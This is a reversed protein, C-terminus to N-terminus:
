TVYISVVKEVTYQIAYAFPKKNNNSSNELTFDTVQVTAETYKVDTVDPAKAFIISPASILSLLQNNKFPINIKCVYIADQDASDMLAPPAHETLGIACTMITTPANEALNKVDMVM